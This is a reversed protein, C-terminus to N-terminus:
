RVGAPRDLAWPNTAEATPQDVPSADDPDPVVQWALLVITAAWWLASWRSAFIRTLRPGFM